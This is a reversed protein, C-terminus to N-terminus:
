LATDIYLLRVTQDRSPEAGTKGTLVTHMYARCKTDRNHCVMESPIEVYKVTM